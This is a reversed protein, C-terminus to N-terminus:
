RKLVHLDDEGPEFITSVDVHSSEPGKGQRQLFGQQTWKQAFAAFGVCDAVSTSGSLLQSPCDAQFRSNICWASYDCYIQKQGTEPWDLPCFWGYCLSFDPRGAKADKSRGFLNRRGSSAQKKEEPLADDKNAMWLELGRVSPDCWTCLYQLSIPISAFALSNSTPYICIYPYPYSMIHIHIRM